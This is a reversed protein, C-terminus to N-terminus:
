NNTKMKMIKIKNMKLNNDRNNNFMKNIEGILFLNIIMKNKMKNNVQFNVKIKKAKKTKILKKVRLSYKKNSKQM